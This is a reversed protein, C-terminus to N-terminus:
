AKPAVPVVLTPGAGNRVYVSHFMDNTPVIRVFRSPVRISLNPEQM